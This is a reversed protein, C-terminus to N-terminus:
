PKGADDEFRMPGYFRSVFRKGCKRCTAWQGGMANAITIELATLRGFRWVDHSGCRKCRLEERKSAQRSPKEHSVPALEPEPEAVPMAPPAPAEVARDAPAAELFSAGGATAPVLDMTPLLSATNAVSNAVTNAVTNAV